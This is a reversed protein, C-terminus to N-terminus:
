TPCCTACCPRCAATLLLGLLAYALRYRGHTVYLVTVVVGATLLLTVAFDKAGLRDTTAMVVGLVAGFFLNLGEINARYEGPTMRGLMGLKGLMKRATSRQAPAPAAPDSGDPAGSVDSRPLGVGPCARMAPDAHLPHLSNTALM